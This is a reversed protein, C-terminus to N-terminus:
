SSSSTETATDSKKRATNNHSYKQNTSSLNLALIFVSLLRVPPCAEQPKMTGKVFGSREEGTTLTTM